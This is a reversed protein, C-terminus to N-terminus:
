LSNAQSVHLYKQLYKSQATMTFYDYYAYNYFLRNWNNPVLKDLIHVYM